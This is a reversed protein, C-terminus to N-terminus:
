ATPATERTLIPRRNKGDPHTSAPVRKAVPTAIAYQNTCDHDRKKLTPLAYLHAIRDSIIEQHPSFSDYPLTEWDPFLNVSHQTFQEIESQLKLAIQPDPVALLTHSNHQEALGAISAALSSGILNGLHKKDGAGSPTPLTFISTDTM